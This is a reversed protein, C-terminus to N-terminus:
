RSIRGRSLLSARTTSVTMRADSHSERLVTSLKPLNLLSDQFLASDTWRTVACVSPMPTPFGPRYSPFRSQLRKVERAESDHQCPNM